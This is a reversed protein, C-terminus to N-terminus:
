KSKPAPDLGPILEGPKSKPPKYNKIANFGKKFAAFDPYEGMPLKHASLISALALLDIVPASGAPEVRHNLCGFCIEVFAVPKKDADYFVFADHPIHCGAVPHPEHKGTVAALLQKVQQPTLLAGDKNIVGPKLSKDALIVAETEKDDPWAYARVETFQVGPWPEGAFVSLTTLLLFLITRKM